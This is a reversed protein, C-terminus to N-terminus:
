SEDVDPGRVVKVGVLARTRSDVLVELWPRGVSQGGRVAADLRTRDLTLGDGNTESAGAEPPRGKKNPSRRADGRRIVLKSPERAPKDSRNTDTKRKSM